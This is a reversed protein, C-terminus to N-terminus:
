NLRVEVNGDRVLFSLPGRSVLHPPSLTTCFVWFGNGPASARPLPASGTLLGNGLAWCEKVSRSQLTSLWPPGTHHHPMFVTFCWWTLNFCPVLPKWIVRCIQDIDPSSSQSRSISWRSNVVVFIRAAKHPGKRCVTERWDQTAQISKQFHM